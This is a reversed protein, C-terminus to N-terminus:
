TSIPHAKEAKFGVAIPERHERRAAEVEEECSVYVTGDGEGVIRRRLREGWAAEVEVQDGIKM